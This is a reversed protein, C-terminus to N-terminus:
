EKSKQSMNEKKSLRMTVGILVITIVAAYIFKAAVSNTELPFLVRVLAQIADNWALGVVIGFGALIYTAFRNVVRDSVGGIRKQVEDSVLGRIIDKQSTNKPM